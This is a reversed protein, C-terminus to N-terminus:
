PGIWAEGGAAKVAVGCRDDVGSSWVFSSFFFLCGRVLAHALGKGRGRALITVCSSSGKLIEIM